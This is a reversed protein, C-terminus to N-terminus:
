LSFEGGFAGKIKEKFSDKHRELWAEVILVVEADPVGQNFSEIKLDAGEQSYIHRILLAFSVEKEDTHESPDKDM